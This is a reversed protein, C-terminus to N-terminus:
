NARENQLKRLEPKLVYYITGKFDVPNCDEITYGMQALELLDYVAVSEEQNM